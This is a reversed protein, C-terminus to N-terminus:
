PILEEVPTLKELQGSEASKEAAVVAQTIELPAELPFPLEGTEIMDLFARVNRKYCGKGKPVIHQSYMDGYVRIDYLLPLYSPVIGDTPWLYRPGRKPTGISGETEDRLQLITALKGDRWRVITAHAAPLEQPGEGVTLKDGSSMAFVSEIGPGLLVHLAEMIHVLYWGFMSLGSGLTCTAGILKGLDGDKIVQRLAMVEATYRNASCSMLLANNAKALRIMEVADEVTDALPKDVMTPLGVELFPRSLELHDDKYGGWVGNEGPSRRGGAVFVADVKGVMDEPKEVVDAIDWEKAFKQAVPDDYDWVAVVKVEEKMFRDLVRIWPYGHPEVTVFGVRLQDTM